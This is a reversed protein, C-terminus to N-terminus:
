KPATASTDKLGSKKQYKGTDSPAGAAARGTDAKMGTDAGIGMKSTDTAAAAGTDTATGQMGTEPNGGATSSPNSANRGGGGCGALLVAAVPGLMWTNWRM